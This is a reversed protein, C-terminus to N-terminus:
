VIKDSWSDAIFPSGRRYRYRVPDFSVWPRDEGPIESLYEARAVYVARDEERPASATLCGIKGKKEVYDHACGLVLMEM